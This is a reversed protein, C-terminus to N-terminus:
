ISISSLPLYIHTFLPMIRPLNIDNEYSSHCLAYFFVNCSHKNIQIDVFANQNSIWHIVMKKVRLHTGECPRSQYDKDIRDNPREIMIYYRSFIHQVSNSLRYCTFSYAYYTISRESTVKNKM